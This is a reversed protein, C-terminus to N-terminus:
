HARAQNAVAEAARTEDIGKASPVVNIRGTFRNAQNWTSEGRRPLVIRYTCLGENMDILTQSFCDAIKYHDM